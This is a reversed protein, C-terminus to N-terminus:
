PNPNFRLFLSFKGGVFIFMFITTLKAKHFLALWRYVRYKYAELLMRSLLWIGVTSAVRTFCIYSLM